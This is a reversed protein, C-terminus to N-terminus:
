SKLGERTLACAETLVCQRFGKLWDRMRWDAGSVMEILANMCEMFADYGVGQNYRSRSAVMSGLRHNLYVRVAYSEASNITVSVVAVVVGRGRPACSQPLTISVTDVFPMKTEAREVFYRALKQAVLKDKKRM